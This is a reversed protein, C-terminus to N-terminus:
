YIKAQKKIMNNLPMHESHYQHIRKKLVHNLDGNKAKNPTKRNKMLKQEDSKTYLTLLKYGRKKMDYITSMEVGHEGTPRKVSVGSNLKELDKQAISLCKRKKKDSNATPADASM